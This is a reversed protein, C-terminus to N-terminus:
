DNYVYGKALKYIKDMGRLYHKSARGKRKTKKVLREIAEIMEIDQKLRRKYGMWYSYICLLITLCFVLTIQAIM